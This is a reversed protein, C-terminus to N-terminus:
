GAVNPAGEVAAPDASALEVALAIQKEKGRRLSEALRERAWQRDLPDLLYPLTELYATKWWRVARVSRIEYPLQVSFAFAIDDGDAAMIALCLPCRFRAAEWWAVFPNGEQPHHFPRHSHDTKRAAELLSAVM